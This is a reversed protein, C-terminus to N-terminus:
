NNIAVRELSYGQLITATLTLLTIERVLLKSVCKVKNKKNKKKNEKRLMKYHIRLRAINQYFFINASM